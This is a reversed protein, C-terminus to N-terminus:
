FCLHLFISVRWFAIGKSAYGPDYCDLTKTVVQSITTPELGIFKQFHPSHGKQVKKWGTKKNAVTDPM